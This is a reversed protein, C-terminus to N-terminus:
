KHLSRTALTGQQTLFVFNFVTLWNMILLLSQCVQLQSRWCADPFFTEEMHKRQNINNDSKVNKDYNIKNKM